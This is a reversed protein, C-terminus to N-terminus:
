SCSQRINLTLKKNICARLEGNIEIVPTIEIKDFPGMTEEMQTADIRITKEQKEEFSEGKVFYTGVQEAGDYMYYLVHPVPDYANIVTVGITKPDLWQCKKYQFFIREHCLKDETIEPKEVEAPLEESPAAEEEGPAEEEDAEEPQEGAAPVKEEIVSPGEGEVEVVEEGCGYIVISFLLALLVLIARLRM